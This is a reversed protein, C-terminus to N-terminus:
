GEPGWVVNFRISVGRKVSSDDPFGAGIGYDLRDIDFTGTAVRDNVKFPIVIENIVDRLKLNGKVIFSDGDKEIFKSTFSGTPYKSTDLWDSKVIERKAQSGPPVVKTMDFTLSIKSDALHDPDFDVEGGIGSISGKIEVGFQEIKFNAESRDTDVLGANAAGVLFGMALVVIKM